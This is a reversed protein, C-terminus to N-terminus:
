VPREIILRREVASFMGSVTCACADEDLGSDLDVPESMGGGGVKEGGEGGCPLPSPLVGLVTEPPGCGSSLLSPTGGSGSGSHRMQPGTLTGNVTM